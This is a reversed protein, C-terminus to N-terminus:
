KLLIMRRIQSTTASNLRYFYLGSGVQKGLDDKGNWEISHAGTEFDPYSKVVQGKVNYIFLQATEGDKVAFNITTKPNFPNPYNQQLETIEISPPTSDDESEITVSIPGFLETNGSYEVSELWYFYETTTEVNIDLYSYSQESATNTGSIIDSNVRMTSNFDNEVSRYVNYGSLNSESQTTWSIQAFDASTQVATFASLVVPLPGDAGQEGPTATTPTSPIWNDGSEQHVREGGAVEPTEDIIGKSGDSLAYAFGNTIDLFDTGFAFGEDFNTAELITGWANNFDELTYGDSLVFYGGDPITYGAPFSHSNDDPVFGSGGPNSGRLISYGDLSLPSGTNNWLEIFGSTGTSFKSGNDDSVESIYLNGASSNGAGFEYAGIDTTGVRGFGRQDETPAGTDNGADIAVSGTILALTQTGNLTNNDALTSSLNLNAQEGTIDGIGVWNYNYSDEVINYGNDVVTGTCWNSFHFDNGNNGTNDALITNKINLTTGYFYIANSSNGSFTCNTLTSTAYEVLGGAGSIASNGNITSNTITSTGRNFIGGGWSGTNNNVTCNSLSLTGYYHNYIGGGNGISGATNGSIACNILILTCSGGNYIGGGCVDGMDMMDVNLSNNSVSCDTLTLTGENYIGGGFINGSAFNITIINQTVICNTLTLTGFNRIGSGSNDSTFHGHRVTMDKITVTNGPEIDFVRDTASSETAHAQVITNAAGQITLDTFSRDIDIDDSNLTYTDGSINIIITSTVPDLVNDIAYQITQWADSGTASGHAGDDTGAPDVYYDVAMLNVSMALLMILIMGLVLSTRKM